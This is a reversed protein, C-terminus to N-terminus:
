KKEGAPESPPTQVAAPPTVVGPQETPIAPLQAPLAVPAQPQGAPVSPVSGMVGIDAAAPAPANINVAKWAMFLALCFFGFALWQTSKALFNTSGRSGFVTGSAGAGFGSGAQAGAGRQLLILVAMAIAILIYVIQLITDIM